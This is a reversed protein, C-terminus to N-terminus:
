VPLHCKRSLFLCSSPWEREASIAKQGPRTTLKPPSAKIEPISTRVPPQSWTLIHSLSLIEQINGPPFCPTKSTPPSSDPHPLAEEPGHWQARQLVLPTLQRFKLSSCVQDEKAIEYMQLHGSLPFPSQGLTYITPKLVLNLIREQLMAYLDQAGQILCVSPCM